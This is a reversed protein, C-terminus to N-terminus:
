HSYYVGGLFRLPCFHPPSVHTVLKHAVSPCGGNSYLNIYLVEADRQVLAGNSPVVCRRFSPSECNEMTRVVVSLLNDQLGMEAGMRPQM